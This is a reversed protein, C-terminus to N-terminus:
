WSSIAAFCTTMCVAGKLPCRGTYSFTERSVFRGSHKMHFMRESARLAFALGWGRGFAVFSGLVFLGRVM